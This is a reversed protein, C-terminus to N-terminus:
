IYDFGGRAQLTGYLACAAHQPPSHSRLRVEDEGHHPAHRVVPLQPIRPQRDAECVAREAIVLCTVIIIITEGSLQAHSERALTHSHSRTETRFLRPFSVFLVTLTVSRM